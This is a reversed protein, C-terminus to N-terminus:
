NIDHKLSVVMRETHLKKGCAGCVHDEGVIKFGTKPHERCLFTVLTREIPTSAGSGTRESEKKKVDDSM